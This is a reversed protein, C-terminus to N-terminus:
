CSLTAEANKRLGIQSRTMTGDILTHQLHQQIDSLEDLSENNEFMNGSM